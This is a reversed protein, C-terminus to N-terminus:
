DLLTFFVNKVKDILQQDTNSVFKRAVSEIAVELKEREVAASVAFKEKIQAELEADLEAHKRRYEAQMAKFEEVEKESFTTAPTKRKRSPAAPVPAPTFFVPPVVHPQDDSVVVTPAEHLPVPAPVPFVPPVVGSTRPIRHTRTLPVPMKSIPIKIIQILTGLLTFFDNKIKKNKDTLTEDPRERANAYDVCM